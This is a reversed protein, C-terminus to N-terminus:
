KAASKEKDKEANLQKLVDATIDTLGETYMITTAGIGSKNIVLNYKGKCYGEISSKIKDLIQKQARAYEDQLIKQSTAQYEKLKNEEVRLQDVLENGKKELDKKASESLTTDKLKGGIDQIQQYIKRADEQRGEFQKKFEEMRAQLGQTAEQAKYYDKSITDLDVIAIKSQAHATLTFLSLCFVISAIIKNM